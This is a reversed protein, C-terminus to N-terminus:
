AGFHGLRQAIRSNEREVEAGEDGSRAVAAVEFLTDLLHQLAQRLFRVRNQEDVLDVREDPGARGRTPRHVRAVQELRRQRGPRQPADARRRERIDLLREVLITRQRAAELLDFHELRVLNLSDRDQM